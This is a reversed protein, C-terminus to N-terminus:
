ARPGRWKTIWMDKLGNGKSRTFGVILYDGNRDQLISFVKDDDAGGFSKQWIKEGQENTCMFWADIDTEESALSPDKHKVNYGITLLQKSSNELGAVGGDFEFKRKRIMEIDEEQKNAGAVFDKRNYLHDWLQNGNQDISFVWMSIKGKPKNYYEGIVVIEGNEKEFIDLGDDGGVAGLGKEWLLKGVADVKVLWLDTAVRGKGHYLSNGVALYGGDKTVVVKNLEEGEPLVMDHQKEFDTKELKPFFQGGYTKEWILNGMGDIKALYGHSVGLPEGVWSGVIMFNGDPLVVIGSGEDNGKGGYTKRWLIDGVSNIRLVMIDNNFNSETTTAVIVFEDNLTKQIDYALEDGKGGIRKEWIKNGNYDVKLIVMDTDYRDIAQSMGVLIYASYATEVISRVIDNKSDGFTQEWIVFPEQANLIFIQVCSILLFLYKM